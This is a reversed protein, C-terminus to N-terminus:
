GVLVVPFHIVRKRTGKVLNINGEKDDICVAVSIDSTTATVSSQMGIASLFSAAQVLPADVVHVRGSLAEACTPIVKMIANALAELVHAGALNHPVGFADLTPSLRFYAM